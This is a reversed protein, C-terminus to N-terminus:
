EVEIKIWAATAPETSNMLVEVKKGAKLAGFGGVQNPKKSKSRDLWIRTTSKVGISKSDGDAQMSFSKAASNVATISGMYSSKGSVGPSMGIPIFKETTQQAQSTAFSLSLSVAFLIRLFTKSNM